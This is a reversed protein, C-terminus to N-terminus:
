RQLAVPDCGPQGVVLAIRQGASVRFAHVERVGSCANSACVPDIVQVRLSHEKM